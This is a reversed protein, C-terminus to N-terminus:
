PHALLWFDKEDMGLEACLVGIQERKSSLEIRDDRLLIGQVSGACQMGQQMRLRYVDDQQFSASIPDGIVAIVTAGNAGDYRWAMPRGVGGIPSGNSFGHQRVPPPLRWYLLYCPPRLSLTLKGANGRDSRHEVVCTQDTVTLHIAYGALMQAQPMTSPAQQAAASPLGMFSTAVALLTRIVIGNEM